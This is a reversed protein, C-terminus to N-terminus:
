NYYNINNDFLNEITPYVEIFRYYSDDFILIGNNYIIDSLNNYLIYGTISFGLFYGSIFCFIGFLIILKYIKTTTIEIKRNNIIEKM